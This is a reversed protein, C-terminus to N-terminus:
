RDAETETLASRLFFDLTTEITRQLPV